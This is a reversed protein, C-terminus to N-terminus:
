LIVKWDDSTVGAVIAAIISEPTDLSENYHFSKVGEWLKTELKDQNVFDQTVETLIVHDAGGDSNNKEVRNMQNWNKDKANEKLGSENQSEARQEQLIEIGEIYNNAICSASRDSPTYSIPEVRGYQHHQKDWNFKSDSFNALSLEAYM